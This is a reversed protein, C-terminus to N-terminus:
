CQQAKRKERSKRSHGRQAETACKLGCYKRSRLTTKFKCRCIPCVLVREKVVHLAKVKAARKKPKKAHQKQALKKRKFAAYDPMKLGNQELHRELAGEGSRETMAVYQGYSLGLQDAEWAIREITKM